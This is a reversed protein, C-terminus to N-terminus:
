WTHGCLDYVDFVHCREIFGGTTMDHKYSDPKMTKPVARVKMCSTQTSQCTNIQMLLQKMRLIGKGKDTIRCWRDDQVSLASKLYYTEIHVCIFPGSYARLQTQVHTTKKCM